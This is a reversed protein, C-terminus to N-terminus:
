PTACAFNAADDISGSGKYKAVQPYACLPRTRLVEEGRRRVAPLREPATGREVWDVLPTATDVPNPGVGGSCHFMGPVMFLRFFDSTGPGMTARVREYYGVGMMPNLAPDAWGYYMLIKGGRARFRGLDPDTANLLTAVAQLKEADRAADFSRWDAEPGLTVMHKFFTEGFTVQVPPRGGSGVLWPDWGSRSGAQVPAAVEAGVPFGPFSGVGAYVAELSKLEAPTFCAESADSSCRPLDSALDLPCRRPDDILGDSLGDAADCKAYVKEALLSLKDALRPTAAFAQQIKAYHLMTGTFDLVPAGVVLGDFDEPFRQASILGQRGGTSCGDFYSRSAPAGYYARALQKATQATVHVARYAYDSLKQPSAAFSALPERAADHGTNTQATAFGKALAADRRAVRATAALSEGAYGGNGFMYLRGNWSGPLGVEFRVEPQILGQVVCSDGVSTASDISFEYGSLARLERCVAKPASSQAKSRDFQSLSQAGASGAGLGLSVGLAVWRGSAGSRKM